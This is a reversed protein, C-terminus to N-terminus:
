YNLHCAKQSIGSQDDSQHHLCYSGSFRPHAEVLSCPAIDWFSVDEYEGGYSGSIECIKINNDWINGSTRFPMKQECRRGLIKYAYRIDGWCVGAWEM